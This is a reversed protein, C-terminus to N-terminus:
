FADYSILNSNNNIVNNANTTKFICYTDKELALAIHLPASDVSIVLDTKHILELFNKSSECSKEFEFYSVFDYGFKKQGAGAAITVLPNFKEIVKKLIIEVENIKLSRKVDTSDPCILVKRYSKKLPKYILECITTPLGLYKRVVEYHNIPLQFNFNRYCFYKKAYSIFYCSDLGNSWPNFGIDPAWNKLIKNVKYMHLFNRKNLAFFSINPLLNEVYPTKQPPILILYEKDPYRIIFEKIVVLNIITDGYRTFISFLVKRSNLVENKSIKESFFKQSKYKLFFNIM